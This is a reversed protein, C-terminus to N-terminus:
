PKLQYSSWRCYNQLQAKMCQRCFVKGSDDTTFTASNETRWNVTRIVTAGNAPKGHLTLSIEM